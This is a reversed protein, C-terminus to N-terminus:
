IKKTNSGSTLLLILRGAMWHARFRCQTHSRVSRHPRPVQLLLELILEVIHNGSQLGLLEELRVPVDGRKCDEEDEDTLSLSPFSM